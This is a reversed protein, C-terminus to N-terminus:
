LCFFLFLFPILFLPDTPIENLMSFDSTDTQLDFGVMMEGFYLFLCVFLCILLLFFLFFLFFFCKSAEDGFTKQSREAKKDDGV